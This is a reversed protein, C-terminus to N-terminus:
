VAHVTAEYPQWTAVLTRGVALPSVNRERLAEVFNAPPPPALVEEVATGPDYLLAGNEAVVRDFMGVGDFVRHLDPLMRGTILLLRRGTAKFRTLAQRTAGAVVGQEAITGDYDVALALRRSVDDSRPM